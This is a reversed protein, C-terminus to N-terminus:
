QQQSIWEKPTMGTLAKFTRFFSTENAFGSELSVQVIKKQPDQSLLQKAYSIRYRNVFQTVSSGECAKVCETISRTTVGLLTALDSLKLESNLFLQQQEMLLCLRQMLQQADPMCPQADDTAPVVPPAAQQRRYQLLLFVVLLLFAGLAIWTVTYRSPATGAALSHSPDHGLPLLVASRLPRFNSDIIGGALIIDGSGSLVPLTYGVDPLPSTHYHTLPAPSGPAAQGYDVALVHHHGAADRGLLYARQVSRDTILPAYYVITGWQGEVPIPCATPLLEFATGKVKIIAMAGSDSRAAILHTFDGQEDDGIFGADSLNPYFSLPHWTALLPAEFSEGQLQDVRTDSLLRDRTDYAGFIIANDPATRLIYPGCRGVSPDKVFSFQRQGDFCEIADDDYHNGAIVVTGNGLAAANALSRKRDLCGFGEFTHTAPDYMEAVFTQGIGLHKEHGGAVLVKGSPLTVAFGDDHQYVTNVLHWAGDRFYEATATPVFGDTHGGVVTLEGNAWFINCGARPLNLDPLRVM